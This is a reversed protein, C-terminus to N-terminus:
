RKMSKLLKQYERETEALEAQILDYELQLDAKTANLRIDTLGKGKYGKLVAQLQRYTM